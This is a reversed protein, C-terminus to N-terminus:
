YYYYYYRNHVFKDSVNETWRVPVMNLKCTNCLRWETKCDICFYEGM